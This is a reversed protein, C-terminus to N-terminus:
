DLSDWQAVIERNRAFDITGADLPPLDDHRFVVRHPRTPLDPVSCPTRYRNGAPDVLPSGDLEITAEFPETIFNVHVQQTQRLWLVLIASVLGLLVVAAFLWRRGSVRTTLPQEPEELAALMARANDFREAPDPQCARLVLRNLQQLVANDAVDGARRGVRPFCRGPLGTMMEYIVLGAAYVDARMDMRGDPPMYDETGLRSVQRDADTVLGFDALKLIGGVFLCNSPKVDRHVLGAEHLCALAELLQRATDLCAAAPLPGTELRSKLTAPRYDPRTSAPGGSLDDAPDMLYYLRDATRGVHHIELLNAHRCGGAAELRMLSEVERAAPGSAQSGTLRIMKVACLRGTTRNAALWVEGYGGSGIQRILDLDPL